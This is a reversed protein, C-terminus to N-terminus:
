DKVPTWTKDPNFRHMKKFEELTNPGLDKEYVVGSHSVIFTKIGSSGYQAPAAVLAFGGIMVGKIVFDMAGNPAAPGQGKLVKFYYGHYPQSKTTYGEEIADAIREGIPGGLTGDPNRWALGDHKGPTSIIRQAFQNVEYGQRKDFAYDYQAEVYGRCIEIADLENGGIRRRLLEDRGAAADFSWKDGHRVIPIPAPWDEKGLILIAHDPDKPDIRISKKERAHAAFEAARKRDQVLDGSTVLDEQGPGLIKKFAAVDFKDAAAIFADAAQEPTDFTQSGAGAPTAATATSAAATPQSAAQQVVGPCPVAILILLVWYFPRRASTAQMTM